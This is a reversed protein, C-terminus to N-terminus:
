LIEKEKLLERSCRHYLLPQKFTLKVKIAKKLKIKQLKMIKGINKKAKQM